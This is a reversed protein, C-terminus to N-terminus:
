SSFSALLRLLRRFDLWPWPLVDHARESASWSPHPSRRTRPRPTRATETRAGASATAGSAGLSLTEDTVDYSAWKSAVTLAPSSGVSHWKSYPLVLTESCSTTHSCPFRQFATFLADARGPRPRAQVQFQPSKIVVPHEHFVRGLSASRPFDVVVSDEHFVGATRNRACHLGEVVTGVGNVSAGVCVESCARAEFTM